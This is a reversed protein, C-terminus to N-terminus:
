LINLQKLFYNRHKLYSFNKGTFLKYQEQAQRLFMEFGSIITNGNEVADVLFKTHYPNYVLDYVICNKLKAVNVPSRLVDPYMGVPTCNVLIQPAYNRFNTIDDFSCNFEDALKKANEINRSLITIENKKELLSVLVARASGGSGLILVRKKMPSIYKKLSEYFGIYDTNYGILKSNLKVVTNVAGIIQAKEDVEDLFPLINKKFPITVSLGSVLEKYEEFFTELNDCLFNLYLANVNSKDYAFNHILYGHSHKLPNGVLGYIKFKNKLRPLRYSNQLKDLSIQGPATNDDANSVFTFENGYLGGLIRSIEGKEGMNHIIFKTRRKYKDILEFVKKNDEITKSFSIVKILDPKYSFMKECILNLNKPTEKFNHYSLIIKTKKKNDLFWMLDKKPIDYEIDLYGFGFDLLEKLINIRSAESGEFFGGNQKSRLAIIMKKINFERLLEMDFKEFKDLRIEILDSKDQVEKIKGITTSIDNYCLSIAYKIM